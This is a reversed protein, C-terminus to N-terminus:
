GAVKGELGALAAVRFFFRLINFVKLAMSNKKGHFPLQEGDM